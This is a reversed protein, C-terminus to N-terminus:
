RELVADISVLQVEVTLRMVLGALRLKAEKASDDAMLHGGYRTNFREDTCGKLSGDLSAMNPAVYQTALGSFRCGSTSSQGVVERDPRPEVVMPTMAHADGDRAGNPSLEFQLPGRWM